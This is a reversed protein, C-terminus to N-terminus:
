ILNNMHIYKLQAENTLAVIDVLNIRQPTTGILERYFRIVEKEIEKHDKLITGNPYGLKHMEIKKSKGRITAHFYALNIDGLKLWNIKSKHMMIQEEIKTSQMLNETWKKVEKIHNPNFRDETLKNQAKELHMKIDLINNVINKM